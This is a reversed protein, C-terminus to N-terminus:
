DSAGQNAASSTPESTELPVTPEAIGATSSPEVARFETEHERSRRELEFELRRIFGDLFFRRKPLLYSLVGRRNRKAQKLAHEVNRVPGM